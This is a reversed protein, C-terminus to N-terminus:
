HQILIKGTVSTQEDEIIGYFYLGPTFDTVSVAISTDNSEKRWVERGFSDYLMIIRVESASAFVFKMEHLAPNPYAIVGSTEATANSDIGTSNGCTDFSTGIWQTIYQYSNDGDISWFGGGIYLTDEFSEVATIGSSFYSGFGCWMTGDWQAINKAHAGGAYCFTGAAILKNQHICFDFVNAPFGLTDKVGGGIDSWSFGDWQAVGEAPGGMSTAIYGGVILKNQFVEITNIGCGGLFSTGVPTWVFADYRAICHLGLSPVHFTGGVYLQNQYVQASSLSSNRFITDAVPFWNSGDFRAINYALVGGISDFNGVAYLDSNFEVFDFIVGNSSGVSTWASGTWKAVGGTGTTNQMGLFFGGAYIEGNYKEFTVVPNCGPSPCQTTGGGLSDWITHNWESVGRVITPGSSWFSGGAYLVHQSTDAFLARVDNDLGGGVIRWNQAAGVLTFGFSLVLCLIRMAGMPTAHTYM